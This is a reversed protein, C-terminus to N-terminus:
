EASVYDSYPWWRSVLQALIVFVVFTNHDSHFLSMSVQILFIGEYFVSVCRDAILMKPQGHRLMCTITVHYLFACQVKSYANGIQLASSLIPIPERSLIVLGVAKQQHMSFFMYRYTYIYMLYIYIYMYRFIIVYDMKMRASPHHYRLGIVWSISSLRGEFGVRSLVSFPVETKSSRIGASKRKRAFTSTYFDLVCQTIEATLDFPHNQYIRTRHVPQIYIYNAYIRGLPLILM